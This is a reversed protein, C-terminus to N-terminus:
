LNGRRMKYVVIQGLGWLISYFPLPPYGWMTNQVPIDTSPDSRALDPLQHQTAHLSASSLYAVSELPALLSLDPCSALNPASIELIHVPFVHM